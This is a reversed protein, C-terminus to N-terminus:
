KLSVSSWGTQPCNGSVTMQLMWCTAWCPKLYHIPAGAASSKQQIEINMKKKRELRWASPKLPVAPRVLLREWAPLWNLVLSLSLSRQVQLHACSADPPLTADTVQQREVWMMEIQTEEYGTKYLFFFFRYGSGQLHGSTCKMERRRWYLTVASKCSYMQTNCKM